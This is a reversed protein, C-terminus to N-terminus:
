QLSEGSTTFFLWFRNIDNNHKFSYRHWNKGLQFLSNGTSNKGDSWFNDVQFISPWKRVSNKAATSLSTTAKIIVFATISCSMASETKQSM